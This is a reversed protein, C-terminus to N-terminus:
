HNHEDHEGCHIQNYDYLGAPVTVGSITTDSPLTYGNVEIDEHAEDCYEGIEVQTEVGDVVYAIHCEHCGHDDDDSCSTISLSMAMLAYMIILPNKM